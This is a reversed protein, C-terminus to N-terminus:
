PVIGQLADWVLSGFTLFLVAWGCLEAVLASDSLSKRNDYSM